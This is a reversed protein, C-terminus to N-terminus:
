EEGESALLADILFLAMGKNNAYLANLGCATEDFDGFDYELFDGLMMDPKHRLDNKLRALEDRRTM